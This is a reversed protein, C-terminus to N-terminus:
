VGITLNYSNFNAAYNDADQVRIIINNFTGSVTPTGSVVGTASNVTVGAPLRGYVDSFIYPSRGGTVTLTWPTLAVNRTGTTTPTGSFTFRNAALGSSDVWDTAKGSSTVTRYRIYYNVNSVVTDSYAFNQDMKVIMNLWNAAVPPSGSNIQFQFEYRYDPRPAANFRIEIRENAYSIVVGTPLVINNVTDSSKREPKVTEEGPLLTFRDQDIPVAGFGCFIGAADVEVPTVIEYDGSFTNDYLMSVIREQRARLGRLGVTPVLKHVPQSRLGISKALRMAQNHNQIALADVTLFKPTQGEVYYNPNLWPASPQASYNADPDTYRIIVGQTISEGNQAEVSEMAHIDRNRTLRVTPTYYYGVRPWCKGDDDFVLQADCSMLIELEAQSREKSEPIAIGCAYRPAVNGSIDTVLQDAITAQEAVKDWNISAESKGRGYRHTRFWAWLLVPNSSPDYTTRDGLTQGNDRPDHVNSWTGVISFNPEGLGTVGRWKYMKYRHEQSLAKIKIVSYTTGVLKHDSTWLTPFAASLAAIPPAVPNTESYTTTYITFCNVRTGTGSYVNNETDLSFENDVVQGNLNVNIEVDDFFRKEISTLISDCHVVVYWFNGDADFEAFIVAGGVRARGAALWREPEGVRVNIKAAEISPTQGAGPKKVFMQSILQVGIGLVLSGIASVLFQTFASLTAYYAAVSAVASSIYAGIAAIAPALQPM